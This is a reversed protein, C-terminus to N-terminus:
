PSFDDARVQIFNGGAILCANVGDHVLQELMLHDEKRALLHINIAMHGQALAKAFNFVMWVQLIGKGLVVFDKFQSRSPTTHCVLPMGVNGKFILRRNHRNQM